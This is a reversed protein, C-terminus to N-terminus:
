WCSRREPMSANFAMLSKQSSPFRGESLGNSGSRSPLPTQSRPLTFRVSPRSASEERGPGGAMLLAPATASSVPSAPSAARGIAREAIRGGQPLAFEGPSDSILLTVGLSLLAADVAQGVIPVGQSGVWAATLTGMLALTEPTLLVRAEQTMAGPLV